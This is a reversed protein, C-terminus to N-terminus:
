DFYHIYWNNPDLLYNYIQDRKGDYYKESVKKALFSPDNRRKAVRMLDYFREGEFALERAREDLIQEELYNQKGAFNGSYNTYGTIENTYPDHTYIINSIKIGDASSGLGVRGRVGLQRRSNNVSYNSGDNVINLANTTQTRILGNQEFAWFTYIEAEYLHIGAARYVIYNADMDYRDKNISYKFVITDVGDMIAKSNRTDGDARLLLMSTYEEETLAGGNKIYLYSSGYGRFFDSPIGAFLMESKSPNQLDESIVQQRWTTEWNSIAWSTPKLMYRDMSFPEFLSQLNNQQLKGKNFWITYIHERNDINGFINRWGYSGFSNDLQYRLTETSNYIIQSFHEDAKVFNGQTLYMQGLLAHMAYTNWTTVEWTLDNNYLAYDVGVAKIDKELENTFYDIVLDEDYYNKELVVPKNTVTDNYYGDKSFDIYVSDIYTGPSNVYNEIEDITVLSENIFPVKGYIRVANFYAWARMCLAEGYLKDFNTVPSSHDLVESHTRRLVRIFNNSAAILKFFNTPSAYKNEKTINFNYIGVLDADANPTITLLDGRLEGLILLQEALQQQLGYLGMAVSRYEYWDDFLKNETISLEQEPNLFKECSQLFVPGFLFPFIFLLYKFTKNM